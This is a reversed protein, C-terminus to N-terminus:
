KIGEVKAIMLYADSNGDITEEQNWLNVKSADFLVVSKFHKTMLEYFEGATWKQIHFGHKAENERVTANNQNPATIFGVTGLQDSFFSKATALGVEVNALHEIVESMVVVEFKALERMPPNELDLVAFDLNPRRFAQVAYKVAEENVDVGWVSRATNSLINSGVGLCCGMDIVTRGPTWERSIARYLKEQLEPILVGREKFRSIERDLWSISASQNEKM